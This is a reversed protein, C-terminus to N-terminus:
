FTPSKLFRPSSCVKDGKKLGLEALGATFQQILTNLQRFTLKVAPAHHPDMVALLDGHQEAARQWRCWCAHVASGPSHPCALLMIM